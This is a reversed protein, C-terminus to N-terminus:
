VTYLIISHMVFHTYLCLTRVIFQIIETGHINVVMYTFQKYFFYWSSCLYENFHVAVSVCLNTM